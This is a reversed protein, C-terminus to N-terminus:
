REDHEECLHETLIDLARMVTRLMRAATLDDEDQLHLFLAHDSKEWIPDLTIEAPHWATLDATRQGDRVGRHARLLHGWYWMAVQNAHDVEEGARRRCEAVEVSWRAFAALFRGRHGASPRRLIDNTYVLVEAVAHIKEVHKISSRKLRAQLQKSAKRATFEQLTLFASSPVSAPEGPATPLPPISKKGDLRGQRAAQRRDRRSLRVERRFQRASEIKDTAM